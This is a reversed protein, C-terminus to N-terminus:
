LFITNSQKGLNTGDTQEKRLLTENIFKSFHQIPRDGQKMYKAKERWLIGNM